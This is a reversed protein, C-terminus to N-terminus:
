KGKKKKPITVKLIGNKYDSTLRSADADEPLVLQSLFVDYSEKQSYYNQKKDTKEKDKEASIVLKNDKVEVKIDKKEVGPIRAEVIYSSENSTFNMSSGGSLKNRRMIPANPMRSFDNDLMHDMRQQMMRMETFPDWSSATHTSQSSRLPFKEMRAPKYRTYKTKCIRRNSYKGLLYANEFILVGALLIVAAILIRNKM